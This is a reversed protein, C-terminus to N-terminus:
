KQQRELSRLIGENGYIVNGVVPIKRLYPIAQAYAVGTGLMDLHQGLNKLGEHLPYERTSVLAINAMNGPPMLSGGIISSVLPIEPKEPYLDLGIKAAVYNDAVSSFIANGLMYASDRIKEPLGDLQHLADKFPRILFPISAAQFSFVLMIDTMNPGYAHEMQHVFNDFRPWDSVISWAKKLAERATYIGKENELEQLRGLPHEKKLEAKAHKRIMRLERKADAEHHEGHPSIKGTFLDYTHQLKSVMSDISHFVMGQADQKSAGTILEQMGRPINYGSERLVSGLMQWNEPDSLIRAEADTNKGMGHAYRLASMIPLPAMAKTQYMMGELGYKQLMAIFPPDGIMCFGSNNSIHSISRAYLKGKNLTEDKECLSDVLNAVEERMMGSSAVTTAMSSTIIPLTSLMFITQAETPQRAQFKEVVHELDLKVGEAAVTTGLIVRFANYGEKWEKMLHHKGEEDSTLYKVISTVTQAIYLSPNIHQGQLLCNIGTGFTATGLYDLSAQLANSHKEEQVIVELAGTHAKPDNKALQEEVGHYIESILPHTAHALLAAGVTTKGLRLFNRRDMSSM